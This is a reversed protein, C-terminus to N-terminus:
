LTYVCNYDYVLSFFSRFEYRAVNKPAYHINKPKKRLDHSSFIYNLQVYM